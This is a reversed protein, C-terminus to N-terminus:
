VTSRNYNIEIICAICALWMTLANIIQCLKPHYQHNIYWQKYLHMSKHQLILFVIDYAVVVM